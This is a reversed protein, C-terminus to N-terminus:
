NSLWNIKKVFNISIIHPFLNVLNDGVLLELIFNVKKEGESTKIFIGDVELKNLENILQKLCQDNGM